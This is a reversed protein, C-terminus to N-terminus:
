EQLRQNNIFTINKTKMLKAGKAKMKRLAFKAEKINHSGLADIIIRVKKGRRLLGMATAMVADETGAGILVFEDAQVESLLREIRPEDFPDICRKHLIVQKYALLIDAPLANKDDAPFSVRERFLTCPVKKQGDTGDLCYNIESCGNNNPYVDATSIVPVNEHRAWVMIRRIKALVEAQNRVCATGTPLLFDKQTDIDILLHCRRRPHLQLIMKLSGTVIVGS